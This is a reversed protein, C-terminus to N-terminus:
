WRIFWISINLLSIRTWQSNFVNPMTHIIIFQDDGNLSSFHLLVYLHVYQLALFSCWIDILTEEDLKAAPLIKIKKSLYIEMVFLVWESTHSYELKFVKVVMFRKTVIYKNTNLIQGFKYSQDDALKHSCHDRSFDCNYISM